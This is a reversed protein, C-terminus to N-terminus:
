AVNPIPVAKRGAAEFRVREPAVLAGGAEAIGMELDMQAFSLWAREKCRTEHGYFWTPLSFHLAV